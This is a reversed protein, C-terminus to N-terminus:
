FCFRAFVQVSSVELSAATIRWASRIHDAVRIRPVLNLASKVRGVPLCRRVSVDGVLLHRRHDYSSSVRVDCYQVIVSHCGEFLV